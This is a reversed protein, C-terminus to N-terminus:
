RAVPKAKMPECFAAAAKPLDQLDASLLRREPTKKARRSERHSQWVADRQVAIQAMSRGSLASRAEQRAPIPTAEQERRIALWPDKGSLGRTRVLTWAGRLKKGHLTFDLKGKRLMSELDGAAEYIGMDWVMVTGAGYNGQPIVGEFLAYDLPHDEVHIALRRE